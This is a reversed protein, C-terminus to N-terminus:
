RRPEAPRPPQAPQPAATPQISPHEAPLAYPAAPVGPALVPGFPDLRIQFVDKPGGPGPESFFGLGEAENLLVQVQLDVIERKKERRRELLKRLQKVREEVNALEEERREMDENFYDDLLQELREQAQDKEEDDEADNVRSAAERIRKIMEPRAHMMVINKTVDKHADAKIKLRGLLEKEGGRKFIFTGGEGYGDEHGAYGGGGEGGYGGRGGGYGGGYGGEGGRGPRGGDGGRGGEGGRGGDGGRGSREGRERERPATGDRPEETRSPEDAAAAEADALVDDNDAAEQALGSQLAALGVCIAMTGFAWRFTRMSRM